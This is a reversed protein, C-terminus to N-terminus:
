LIVLSPLHGCQRLVMGPMQGPPAAVSILVPFEVASKWWRLGRLIFGLQVQIWFASIKEFHKPL